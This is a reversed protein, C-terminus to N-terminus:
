TGSVTSPAPLSCLCPKQEWPAKTRIFSVPWKNIFLYIFLIFPFLIIQHLTAPPGLLGPLCPPPSMYASVNLFFRTTLGDPSPFSWASSAPLASARLCSHPRSMQSFLVFTPMALCLLHHFLLLLHNPSHPCCPWAKCGQDATRVTTRSGAADM